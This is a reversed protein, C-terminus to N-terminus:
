NLTHKSKSDQMNIALRIVGLKANTANPTHTLKEIGDRQNPHLKSLPVVAAPSFWKSLTYNGLIKSGCNLIKKQNM